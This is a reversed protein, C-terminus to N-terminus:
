IFFIIGILMGLTLVIALDIIWIGIQNIISKIGSTTYSFIYGNMNKYLYPTFYFSNVLDTQQVLDPSINLTLKYIKYKATTPAPLFENGRYDKSFITQSLAGFQELNKLLDESSQNLQQNSAVWGWGCDDIVCEVVYVNTPIKPQTINQNLNYFEVFQQLNLFHKDTALWFTRATYIRPDFLILDPSKVANNLYSKLSSTSSKSSFSSPTGYAIGLGALAMIVISFIIIIKFSKKSTKKLTENLGYGAPIAALLPLFAFHKQLPAGASQLIFPITILLFVFAFIKREKRKLMVGLGLLAFLLLLPDTKYLLNYNGYNSLLVVNNFFSRDQGALNAYLEQAKPIKIVRSVYVDVIGKEQYLFYNFAILPLAFIFLTCLFVSLHKLNRKSFLNKRELLAVFVLFSFIFFPANYKTLIGLGFFAACGLLLIMKRNELYVLGFYIATFIFFFVVLSQETFTMRILFSSITVFLASFLATKENTLKRTILFIVVILMTGAILPFFRSAFTTYGFIKYALDTLYFFLPPNSNTSLLNTNFFGASQSAFVMDDALVDLNLAAITRFVFGIVLLFVLWRQYRKEKAYILNLTWDVAKNMVSDKQGKEAVAIPNETM